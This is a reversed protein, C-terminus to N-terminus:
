PIAGPVRALADLFHYLRQETGNALHELVSINLEVTYYEYGCQCQRRRYRIGAPVDPQDHTWTSNPYEAGSLRSDQVKGKGRAPHQGCRPCTSLNVM